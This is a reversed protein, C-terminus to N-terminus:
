NMILTLSGNTKNDIRPLMSCTANDPSLQVTMFTYAQIGALKVQMDLGTLKNTINFHNVVQKKVTFKYKEHLDPPM